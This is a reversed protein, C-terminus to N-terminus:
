LIYILQFIKGRKVCAEELTAGLIEMYLVPAYTLYVSAEAHM